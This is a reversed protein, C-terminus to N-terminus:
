GGEQNKLLLNLLDAREKEPIRRRDLVTNLDDIAYIWEFSSLPLHAPANRVQIGSKPCPGGSVLCIRRTLAAKVQAHDVQASLKRLKPDALLRSDGALQDVYESVLAEIKRTGGLRQFLTAPASRAGRAHFLTAACLSFLLAIRM